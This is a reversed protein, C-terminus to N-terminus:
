LLGLHNGRSEPIMQMPIQAMQEIHLTRREVHTGPIRRGDRFGVTLIETKSGRGGAVIGQHRIPVIQHPHGLLYGEIQHALMAGAGSLGELLRDLEHIDRGSGHAFGNGEQQDMFAVVREQESMEQIDSYPQGNPQRFDNAHALTIVRDSVGMERFQRDAIDGCREYAEWLLRCQEQYGLTEGKQTADDRLQTELPKAADHLLFGHLADQVDSENWGLKQGIMEVLMAGFVCHEAAAFFTRGEIGQGFVYQRGKEDLAHNGLQSRQRDNLEQSNDIATAAEQEAAKRKGPRELIGGIVLLKMKEANRDIFDIVYEELAPGFLAPEIGSKQSQKFLQDMGKLGFGTVWKRLHPASEEAASAHKELTM